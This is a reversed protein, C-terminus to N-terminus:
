WGRGGYVPYPAIQTIVANGNGEAQTPSLAPIPPLTLMRGPTTDIGGGIRLMQAVKGCVIAYLNKILCVLTTLPNLTLLVFLSLSGPMNLWNLWFKSGCFRNLSIRSVTRSETPRRISSPMDSAVPACNSGTSTYSVSVDTTTLAPGSSPMWGSAM